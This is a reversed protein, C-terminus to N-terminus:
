SKSRHTPKRDAAAQLLWDRFHVVRPDDRQASSYAICYAMDDRADSEFPAVLQGAAIEDDTLATHLLGVGQGALAASYALNTDEFIPGRAADGASVGHAELWERWPEFDFSHLLRYALLDAPRELPPGEELLRPSLMPTLTGALMPVSQIASGRGPGIRIVVDAGEVGPEMDSTWPAEHLRLDLDPHAHWLRGLRPALWRVAFAPTATVHLPADQSARSLDVTAAHIRDFAGEIAPLYDRGAETLRVARSRREFLPRGLWAELAKVQHSIAGHTVSLEEAAATFSQHRAAAEFARLANLPPLRRPM